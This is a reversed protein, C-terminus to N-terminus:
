PQGRWIRCVGCGPDDAVARLVSSPRRPSPLSGSTQLLSFRDTAHPQAFRRGDAAPRRCRRILPSLDPPQRGPRARIQPCRGTRIQIIEGTSNDEAHSSECVRLRIAACDRRVSRAADAHFRRRGGNVITSEHAGSRRVSDRSRHNPPFHAPNKGWNTPANTRQFNSDIKDGATPHFRRSYM